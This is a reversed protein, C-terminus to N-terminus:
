RGAGWDVKGGRPGAAKGQGHGVGISVAKIFMAGFDAKTRLWRWRSPISPSERSSIRPRSSSESSNTSRLRCISFFVAASRPRVRTLRKKSAEVRVWAEKSSAPLRRPASTMFMDTAEEDMRLPSVNISVAIVGGARDFKQRALDITRYDIGAVARVFVRRLRQEVRQGDAAVFAADFAEGDGDAAIDQMRAHRAGVDDQEVCEARAHAHHRRRRQ